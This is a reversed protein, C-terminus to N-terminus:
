AAPAASGFPRREWGRDVRPRAAATAAAAAGGGAAAVPSPPPQASGRRRRRSCPAAPSSPALQQLARMASPLLIPPHYQRVPELPVASYLTPSLRTTPFARAFIALIEESPPLPAPELRARAASCTTRLPQSPPQRDTRAPPEAHPSASDRGGGGDHPALQQLHHVSM